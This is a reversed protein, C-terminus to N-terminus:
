KGFRKEIKHFKELNSQFSSYDLNKMTDFSIIESLRIHWPLFGALCSVNGFNFIVNPDPFQFVNKLLADIYEVNVESHQTNDCLQRSVNVLKRQNDERSLLIVNTTNTDYGNKNQVTTTHFVFNVKKESSSLLSRKRLQYEIEDKSRKIIGKPDFLTVYRIGALGSWSIIQSLKQFSISDELVVIALHEPAHNMKSPYNKIYFSNYIHVPWSTELRKIFSVVFRNATICFHILTLCLKTILM